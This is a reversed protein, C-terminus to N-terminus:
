MVVTLVVIVVPNLVMIMIGNYGNDGGCNDDEGGSVLAVMM